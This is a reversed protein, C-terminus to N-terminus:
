HDNTNENKESGQHQQSFFDNMLQKEWSQIIPKQHITASQNNQGRSASPAANFPQEEVPQQETTSKELGPGPTGIFQDEMPVSLMLQNIGRSKKLADDGQTSTNQSGSDPNSGSSQQQGNKKGSDQKKPKRQSQQAAAPSNALLEASKQQENQATTDNDSFPTNTDKRQESDPQQSQQARGLPASESQATANSATNSTPKNPKTASASRKTTQPKLSDAPSNRASTAPAKSGESAASSNLAPALSVSGSTTETHESLQATQSAPADSVSANETLKEHSYNETDGQKQEITRPADTLVQQSPQISAIHETPAHIVLSGVVLIGVSLFIALLNLIIQHGSLFLPRTPFVVPPHALAQSVSNSCSALAAKQFDTPSPTHLFEDVIQLDDKLGLQSDFLALSQQRSPSTRFATFLQKFLYTLSPIAVMGLVFIGLGAYFSQKLFFLLALSLLPLFWLSLCANTLAKHRNNAVVAKRIFKTGKRALLDLQSEILSANTLQM